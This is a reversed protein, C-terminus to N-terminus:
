MITDVYSEVIKDSLLHSKVLADIGEADMQRYWVGDPYVAIAPGEGCRGMCSTLTVRVDQSLNKDKIERRLQRALRISGRDACDRNTCLFVHKKIKAHAHIHPSAQQRTVAHRISFLLSNLGGVQTELEGLAVRYQCSHCPLLHSSQGEDSSFARDEIISQFGPIESLPPLEIVNIGPYRDKFVQMEKIIRAHLVGTYLFYPLVLLNTPRIKALLRLSDKFDPKTIGVFCPMINRLKLGEGILRCMHFFASNAGADNSGRGIPLLISEDEALERTRIFSNIAAVWKPNTGLTECVDYSVTSHSKRLREVVFPIDNKIHGAAFLAFPIIRIIAYLGSLKELVDIFSPEALEIYGAFVDVGPHNSQFDSLTNQFCLNAQPDRSGHGVFLICLGEARAQSNAPSRMNECSVM